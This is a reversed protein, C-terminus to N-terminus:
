RKTEEEVLKIRTEEFRRNIFDIFDKCEEETVVGNFILSSIASHLELVLNSCYGYKRQQETIM